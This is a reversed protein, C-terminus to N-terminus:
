KSIVAMGKWKEGKVGEGEGWGEGMLPSTSLTIFNVIRKGFSYSLWSILDVRYWEKFLIGQTKRPAKLRTLGNLNVLMEYLIPAPDVL